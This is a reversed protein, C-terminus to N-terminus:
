KDNLKLNKARFQNIPKEFYTYFLYSLAVTISVYFIAFINLQWLGFDTTDIFYKMLFLVISYHVLYISYAINCIFTISNGISKSPTEWSLLFPVFMCIAISLLPLCLINWFWSANTLRLKFVMICLFLLIFILIGVAFFLKRKSIMIENYNQYFYGLLVGILVSDIRYIVVARIDFSWKTLSLNTSYIDYYLKLLLTFAILGVVVTLFLVQKSAKTFSKSIALLLIVALIYGMEKVPLSWSEPFFAPLPSSFNQILLPYKWVESVSFGFLLYIITIILIVLYYSPLVRMLRRSVFLGADKLSYNEHLFQKYLIGGILFGSLVIFLEVGLFGSADQLKGLIGTSNYIWSSHSFLLLSISLARLFDLGFFRKVALQKKDNM